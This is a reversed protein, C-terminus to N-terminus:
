FFFNAADSLTDVDVDDVQVLTRARGPGDGDVDVLVFSDDGRGRFTVVGDAIPDDGDLGLGGLLSSLDIVDQGVTFDTIRDGADTIEEFIFADFGDGGTLVDRGERGIIFDAGDTGTLTNRSADGEILTVTEQTAPTGDANFTFLQVDDYIRRETNGILSGDADLDPFSYAIQLTMVSTEGLRYLNAELHGYHKGGDVLQVYTEGDRDTVERWLEGSDRDATWESFPNTIEADADPRTGRMGDGAIGVDYYNVGMADDDANVFSREAIETHGSLVAVVGFEDLLPTFQRLPTGAQGSSRADLGDLGANPISHAAGSSYAANHYQVFVIQGEARADELQERLWAAQISGENFDSLDTGDSEPGANNARYTEADINVNTDTNPATPDGRDSGAVDPEGNSSDLTIITIPGYDIRHYNDQHSDTGNSPMDFYTKYKARSFAVANFDETIGYGGNVAAFNEWNGLAPIIPRDTLVQDFVGANHRFFEDWGLQYGGGQVLDGPMVVFDADREGIIRLNQAYGDTQNLLYLDRDSGDKPLDDPRGLSGDAQAGESWDRVQTAGLPETESDALAVFRIHGWDDGPATRVTAEFTEGSQTVSYTYTTGASLGEIRVSHKYNEGDFLPYANVAANALEPEIYSLLPQLAPDSSLTIPAELDGGSIIVDGAEDTKTFWTLLMGEATPQQQYPLVRFADLVGATISANQSM